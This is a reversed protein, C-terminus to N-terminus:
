WKGVGHDISVQRSGPERVSLYAGGAHPTQGKSDRGYGWLM